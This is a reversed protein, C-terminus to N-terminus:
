PELTYLLSFSDGTLPDTFDISIIDGEQSAEGEFAVTAIGNQAPSCDDAELTCGFRCVTITGTITCDAGLTATFDEDTTSTTGQGDEHDCVFPEAFRSALASGTQTLEYLRDGDTWTGTFDVDSCPGATSGSGDDGGGAGGGGQDPPPDTVDDGTDGGDDGPADNSADDDATDDPTDDVGDDPPTGAGDDGGANDDQDGTDTSDDPTDTSGDDSPEGADPTGGESAGNGTDDDDSPPPACMQGLCFVCVTALLLMRKM